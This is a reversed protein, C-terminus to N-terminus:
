RVNWNSYVIIKASRRSAKVKWVIKAKGHGDALSTTAATAAAVMIMTGATMMEVAAVPTITM